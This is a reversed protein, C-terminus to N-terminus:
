RDSDPVAIDALNIQRRADATHGVGLGALLRMLAQPDVPKVMHRDFGADRSRRRDEDQGWGTLAILVVGKGWPEDRIRRCAEYGNLKPLGIDLLIVDPRFEGAADVGAEGDYATRTDNGVMKLMESLSDAGDRNDDVVLIRFSSRISHEAAGDSEQPTSAEVVIPLRVVFASGQGLGKSMAEVRGGHMHMLRKVLTLGVGLGGRSKELSGDIQTFMEFIRPLQDAAIGIGTDKVTVVVDSAQREVNLHIQGGRDSYKSANHLLNQFVQALRTPDADVMLPQQPLTVTLEHGMQEVLPRITELASELVAALPVHEKRLQLKGRTIRSVDMLDDILRVMHTLQRDMMSHAQEVAAAQMGPMMLLQLSNRIPALPNRLEHALTALFEDKRHAAESLDAALQRLQLEATKRATVDSAIGFWDTIEGQADLIPVARSFTWGWTGDNRRVRHELEFISKTRISEHVRAMIKSQDDPHNYDRLWTRSGAASSALFSRGDLPRMESWDPSMSYVVESSATTLARFRGESERLKEEAARRVEIETASPLLHTIRGETDRLPAVQFDIWMRTDGAMRVPVDYRVVEGGAARECAERLQAQIEPSYSWWYCDWFKEGLVESAPIGAAELPARNAYTVTGDATTVGIFASLNNDLVRQTFQHSERLADEAQRRATIDEVVGGFGMVEGAGDHVPYWSENWIRMLGPASPTEGCFEHNLEAEGTALIRGTVDRLSDALSPVIESVHRGLHAEAPIGNIEALRENIRVYHLDRDLFCFGIPATRLLTDLVASVRQTEAERRQRETIEIAACMVGSISGGKDVLPEVLLDYYRDVGEAHILVDRREIAGTRMVERKMAETNAADQAREFLDRDRKGIVLESNYGLAPNYIWTYRLDSDQHFLTVPASKVALEFRRTAGVQETEARKRETIDRIATVMGAEAGDADRLRTLWTDVQLERGDHTHHIIEGRWEGNARFAAWMAAEAEASPWQRSFIHSLQRGLVDGASVRYQREAAANVYTVCQDLDMAIVADSVQALIEGRFRSSEADLGQLTFVQPGDATEVVLAEVEGSRIARLTDEAEELRARLEANERRLQAEPSTAPTVPTM